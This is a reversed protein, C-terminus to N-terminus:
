LASPSSRQAEKEASRWGIASEAAFEPRSRKDKSSAPDTDEVGPLPAHFVLLPRPSCVPFIHFKTSQPTCVEVDGTDTKTRHCPTFLVGFSFTM